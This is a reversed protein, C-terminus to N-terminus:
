AAAEALPSLLIRKAVGESLPAELARLLRALEGMSEEAEVEIRTQEAMTLGEGWKPDAGTKEGARECWLAIRTLSQGRFIGAKTQLQYLSRIWRQM